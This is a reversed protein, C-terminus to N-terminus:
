RPVGFFITPRADKLTELLTGKLADPQAFYVCANVGIPYYMDVIQSHFLFDCATVHIDHSIWVGM